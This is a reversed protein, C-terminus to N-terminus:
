PPFVGEAILEGRKTIQDPDNINLVAITARGISTRARLQAGDWAFHRKWRDQRPHFLRVVKGSEPDVGAVNPGKYSNCYFCTLALNDEETPGGHKQAIVHDIQFPTEAFEAPFQCYECVRQARDWVFQELEKNM